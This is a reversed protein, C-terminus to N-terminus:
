NSAYRGHKKAKVVKPILIAALIAPIAIAATILTKKKNVHIRKM